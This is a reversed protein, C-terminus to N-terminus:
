KGSKNPKNPKVVLKPPKTEAPITTTVKKLERESLFQKAKTISVSISAYFDEASVLDAYGAPDVTNVARGQQAVYEAIGATGAYQRMNFRSMLEDLQPMMTNIEATLAEVSLMHNSINNVLTTMRSKDLPTITPTATAAAKRVRIREAM